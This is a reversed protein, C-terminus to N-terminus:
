RGQGYRWRWRTWGTRLKPGPGRRATTEMRGDKGLPGQSTRKREEHSAAANARRLRRRRRPATGGHWGGRLGLDAIGPQGHEGGQPGGAVIDGRGVSGNAPGTRTVRGRRRQIRHAWTRTGAIQKATEVAAPWRDTRASTYRTRCTCWALRHRPRHARLRYGPWRDAHDCRPCAPARM